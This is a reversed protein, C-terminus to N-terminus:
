ESAAAQSNASEQEAMENQFNAQDHLGALAFYGAAEKHFASKDALFKAKGTLQTGNLDPQIDPNSAPQNEFNPKGYLDEITSEIMQKIKSM